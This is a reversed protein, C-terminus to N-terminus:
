ERLKCFDCSSSLYLTEKQFSDKQKRLTPLNENSTWCVGWICIPAKLKIHIKWLIIRVGRWKHIQFCSSAVTHSKIWIEVIIALYTLKVRTFSIFSRRKLEKTTKHRLCSSQSRGLNFLKHIPPWLVKVFYENVWYKAELWTQGWFTTHKTNQTQCVQYNTWIYTAWESARHNHTHPPLDQQWAAM